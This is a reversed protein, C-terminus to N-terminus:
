KLYNNNSRTSLHSINIFFCNRVRKNRRKTAVRLQTHCSKSKQTASPEQAPWIPTSCVISQLKTLLIKNLYNVQSELITLISVHHYCFIDGWQELLCFIGLFNTYTDQWVWFVTFVQFIETINVTYNGIVTFILARSCVEFSCVKNNSNTTQYDLRRVPKKRAVRYCEMFIEPRWAKTHKVTFCAHKVLNPYWSFILVWNPIRITKLCFEFNENLETSSDIFM